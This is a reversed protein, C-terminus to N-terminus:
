SVKGYLSLIENVVVEITMDSTDLYVADDAQKLPSVERNMDQYDRQAIDKKIQEIDADTGQSKLQKYRRDARKEVSATLYIKLAADPLVTTGIDRGDMIVSRKKALNRQTDLLLERVKPYASTVSAINGVEEQRILDNVDRENLLVIQKGEKYEISININKIANSVEEESDKDINNELIYLGVARYMAGTDVYILGLKKAALKAITSKGAGAPGDIAINKVMNIMREPM